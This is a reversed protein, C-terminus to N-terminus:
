PLHSRSVGASMAFASRQNSRRAITATSTPRQTGSIRESIEIGAPNRRIRKAVNV